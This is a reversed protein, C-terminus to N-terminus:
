APVTKPYNSAWATIQAESKDHERIPMIIACYEHHGVYEVVVAGRPNEQWFRSMCVNSYQGASFTPHLQMADRLYVAKVCDAVAMKLNKFDPLVRRWQPYTCAKGYCKGPQIYYETKDTKVMLRAAEEGEISVIANEKKAFKVADRSILLEAMPVDCVGQADAIVVLRHGDTTVLFIGGSPNPEVHVYQLYYRIDNKPVYALLVPLYKAQFSIM